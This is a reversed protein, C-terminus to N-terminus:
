KMRFLIASFDGKKWKHSVDECKKSYLEYLGLKYLNNSRPFLYRIFSDPKKLQLFANRAEARSGFFMMFIPEGEYNGSSQKVVEPRAYDWLETLKIMYGCGPRKLQKWWEVSYNKGDHNIAGGEAVDDLRQYPKVEARAKKLAKREARLKYYRQKQEPSLNRWKSQSKTPM